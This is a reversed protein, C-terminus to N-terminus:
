ISKISIIHFIDVDFNLTEIPDLSLKIFFFIITM